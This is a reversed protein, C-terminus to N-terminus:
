PNWIVWERPPPVPAPIPHATTNGYSSHLIRSLEADDDDNDVNDDGSSESHCRQSQRHPRVISRIKHVAGRVKFSNIPQLTELKLYIELDPRDPRRYALPVLPTRIAYGTINKAARITEEAPVRKIMSGKCVVPRDTTPHHHHHHHHHHHSPLPQALNNPLNNRNRSSM